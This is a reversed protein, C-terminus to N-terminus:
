YNEKHPDWKEKKNKKEEQCPNMEELEKLLRCANDLMLKM